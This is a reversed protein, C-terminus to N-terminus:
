TVAPTIVEDGPEMRNKTLPNALVSLALLNASSGSDVMFAYSAEVYQAFM